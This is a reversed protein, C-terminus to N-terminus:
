EIVKYIMRLTKDNPLTVTLHSYRGTFGEPIIVPKFELESCQMTKNPQNTQLIMFEPNDDIQIFLGAKEWTEAFKLEGGMNISVISKADLNSKEEWILEAMKDVMIGIM